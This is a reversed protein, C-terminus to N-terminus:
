KDNESYKILDGVFEMLKFGSSCSLCSQESSSPLVKINAIRM